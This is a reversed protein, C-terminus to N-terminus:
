FPAADFEKNPEFDIFNQEIKQEKVFPNNGDSEIFRNTKIDFMMKVNGPIGTLKRKKIKQSAFICEPNEPETIANPRHYCLIDDCKNNWMAGGSYDYVTPMAYNGGIKELNGKPHGVIFYVIDNVQSFRKGKSLYESIYLDDRGFKKWDNDLQNFPDTICADVNYEDILYEFCSNVYDPTPSASEPYVYFFHKTIFDMAQTYEEKTMQNSHYPETSKGVYTHILDNYFDNPPDQEPSFFGFKWDEYMAKLVCLNNLMTTKGINGIGGLFNVQRKRWTWHRDFSKFYTTTGKARGSEFEEYMSQKVSELLIIDKEALKVDFINEKIEEKSSTYMPKGDTEFYATCSKAAFNKYIDRVIRKIDESPARDSYEFNV